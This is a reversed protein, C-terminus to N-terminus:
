SAPKADVLMDSLGRKLRSAKFGPLAFVWGGVHANIAAAREAASKAGSAPAPADPLAAASIRAWDAGDKAQLDIMVKLGDRTIFEASITKDADFGVFGAKRADDLELQDIVGAINNPDTDYQLKKGAPIDLLTFDREKPDNKVVRVVEGGPHRVTAARVTDEKIDILEQVLWDRPNVEVDFEGAALWTQADGPKRIYVGEKRPGVLNYRKRGAILDAMVKGAADYLKIERAEAKAAKPDAVHLRSYLEPKRTKLEYFNLDAMQVVVKEAVKASVPYGDSEPMTWAGKAGRVLTLTKDRHEITVKAVDNVRDILGPIVHGSVAVGSGAGGTNLSVVAAGVAVATTAALVILNKPTM